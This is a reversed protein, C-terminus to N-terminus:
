FITFLPHKSFRKHHPAGIKKSIFSPNLTEQTFIINQYM